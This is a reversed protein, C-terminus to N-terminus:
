PAAPASDSNSGNFRRIRSAYDALADRPRFVGPLEVIFYILLPVALVLAM